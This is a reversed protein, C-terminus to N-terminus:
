ASNEVWDFSTVGPTGGSTAGTGDPTYINGANTSGALVKVSTAAMGLASAYAFDARRRLQYPNSGDGPHLVHWLGHKTKDAEDKTLLGFLRETGGSGVATGDVTLVGNSVATLIEDPGPLGNTTYGPSLAATTALWVPVKYPGGPFYTGGILFLTWVPVPSPGLLGAPLIFAVAELLITKGGFGFFKMPPDSSFRPGGENIDSLLIDSGQVNVGLYLVEGFTGGQTIRISGQGVASAADPLLLLGDTGPVTHQTLYQKGPEVEFGVPDILFQTDFAGPSVYPQINPNPLLTPM